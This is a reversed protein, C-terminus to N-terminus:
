SQIKDQDSARLWSLDAEPYREHVADRLRNNMINRALRPPTQFRSLRATSIKALMGPKQDLYYPELSEKVRKNYYATAMTERHVNSLDKGENSLL